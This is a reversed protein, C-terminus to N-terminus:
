IANALWSGTRIVGTSYIRTTIGATAILNMRLVFWSMWCKRMERIFMLVHEAATRTFDRIVFEVNNHLNVIQSALPEPTNAWRVTMARDFVAQGDNLHHFTIEGRCQLAPARQVMRAIWPLQQNALILRLHRRKKQELGTSDLPPREVSLRLRPIWIYEIWLATAITISGGIIISIAVLM